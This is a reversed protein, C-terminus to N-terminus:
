KTQSEPEGFPLRMVEVTPSIPQVAAGYTIQLLSNADGWRSKTFPGVYKVASAALVCTADTTYGWNSVKQDVFTFTIAKTADNNLLRMLNGATLTLSNGASWNVAVPTPIVGSRLIKQGGSFSTAAAQTDATDLAFAGLCVFGALAFTMIKKM